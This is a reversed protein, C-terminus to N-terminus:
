PLPNDSCYTYPYRYEEKYKVRIGCAHREKQEDTYKGAM